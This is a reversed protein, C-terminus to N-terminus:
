FIRLRGLDLWGELLRDLSGCRALRGGSSCSSGDAHGLNGFLWHFTGRQSDIRIFESSAPLDSAGFQERDGASQLEREGIPAIELIRNWESAVDRRHFAEFRTGHERGEDDADSVKAHEDFKSWVACPEDVDALEPGREDFVGVLEDLDAIHDRYPDQVGIVLLLAYCQSGSRWAGLDFRIM